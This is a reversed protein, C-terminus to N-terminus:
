KFPDFRSTMDTGNRMDMTIIIPLALRQQIGTLEEISDNELRDVVYGYYKSLNQVDKISDSLMTGPNYDRINPRQCWSIATSANTALNSLYDVSFDLYNAFNGLNRLDNNELDAWQYMPKQNALYEMNGYTKKIDAEMKQKVVIAQNRKISLKALKSKIINLRSFTEAIKALCAALQAELGEASEDNAHAKAIEAELRKKEDLLRIYENYTPNYEKDYINLYEEEIRQLLDLYEAYVKLDCLYIRYENYLDHIYGMASSIYNGATGECLKSLFTIGANGWFNLFQPNTSKHYPDYTQYSFMKGMKEDVERLFDFGSANRYDEPTLNSNINSNIDLNDRGYLPSSNFLANYNSSTDYQPFNPRELKGSHLMRETEDPNYDYGFADHYAIDISREIRYNVEDNHAESFEIATDTNIITEVDPDNNLVGSSDPM